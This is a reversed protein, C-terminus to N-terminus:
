KGEQDCPAKVPSPLEAIRSYYSCAVAAYELLAERGAPKLAYLAYGAREFWGHFNKSLISLTKDGTGLARLQRPSLPGYRELCCAIFLANERYATVIRSRVSGGRNYEGSRAEIEQLVARRRKHSRKRECPLPHFVIEVEAGRGSLDVQILGLELRKLLHRVGKWHGRKGRESPKPVAVYVSETAKQRETAQILLDVSFQRKLEIVILDDGKVATIDCDRVESRVTYGQAILYDRIPAYLDTERAPQNERAPTM